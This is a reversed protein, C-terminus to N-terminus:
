EKDTFMHILDRARELEAVTPNRVAGLAKIILTLDRDAITFLQPAPANTVALVAFRM